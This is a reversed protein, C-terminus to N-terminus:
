YSGSINVAGGVLRIWCQAVVIEGNQIGDCRGVIDVESGPMINVLYAPDKPKFKVNNITIFYDEPGRIYPPFTSQYGAGSYFWAQMGDVAARTLVITQSKFREDAVSSNAAYAEALESATVEIPAAKLEITYPIEKYSLHCATASFLGFVFPILLWDRFRPM